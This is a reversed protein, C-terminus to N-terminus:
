AEQSSLKMRDSAIQRALARQTLLAAIVFAVLDGIIFAWGPGLTGIANAFVVFLILLVGVGMGRAIAAQGPRGAAYLTPLLPAYAASIAGAVLLLVALPASQGYDKQLLTSLVDPGFLGVILGVFLAIAVLIGSSRVILPLVKNAEGRHIM